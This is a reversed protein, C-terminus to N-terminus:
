IKFMSHPSKSNKKNEVFSMMKHLDVSGVFNVIVLEDTSNVFIVMDKLNDGDPIARIKVTESDDIVTLLEIYGKNKFLADMDKKCSKVIGSGSPDDYVLFRIKRIDKLFEKVETEEKPIFIRILSNQISM